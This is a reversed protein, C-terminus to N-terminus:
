DVGGPQWYGLIDVGAIIVLGATLFDIILKATEGPMVNKLMTPGIFLADFLISLTSTAMTVLGLFTGDVASGTDGSVQGAEDKAQDLKDTNGFEVAFGHTEAVGTTQLLGGWANLFVLFLVIWISIRM